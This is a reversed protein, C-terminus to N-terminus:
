VQSRWEDVSRAFDAVGADFASNFISTRRLTYSSLPLSGFALSSESLCAFPSVLSVEDLSAAVFSHVFGFFRLLREIAVRASYIASSAPEM